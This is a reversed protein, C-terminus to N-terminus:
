LSENTMLFFYKPWHLNGHIAHSSILCFMLLFIFLISCYLTSNSQRSRATLPRRSVYAIGSSNSAPAKAQQTGGQALESRKLQGPSSLIRRVVWISALSPKSVRDVYSLPGCAPGGIELWGLLQIGPMRWLARSDSYSLILYKPKKVTM